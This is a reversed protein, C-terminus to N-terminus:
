GSGDELTKSLMAANVREAGTHYSIIMLGILQLSCIELIVWAPGARRANLASLVTWSKRVIPSPQLVLFFKKAFVVGKMGSSNCTHEGFTQFPAKEYLHHGSSLGIKLVIPLDWIHFLDSTSYM